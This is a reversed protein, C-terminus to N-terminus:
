TAGFLLAVTGLAAGLVGAKGEGSREVMSSVFEGGESGLLGSAQGSLADQVDQHGFVLGAIAILVLLLPAIAFLAYYALAAALRAGKDEMYDKGAQRVLTWASRLRWM